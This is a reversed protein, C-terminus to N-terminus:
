AVGIRADYLVQRRPGPLAAKVHAARTYLESALWRVVDAAAGVVWLARHIGLQYLREPADDPLVVCFGLRM